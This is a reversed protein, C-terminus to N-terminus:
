PGPWCRLAGFIHILLLSKIPLLIPYYHNFRNDLAMPQLLPPLWNVNAEIHSDLFILVQGRAEKAGALKAGILGSREKLRVVRVKNDFSDGNESM